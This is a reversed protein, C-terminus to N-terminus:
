RLLILEPTANEASWVIANQQYRQGCEIAELRSIGLVLLHAEGPYTNEPDFGFGPLSRYGAAQMEDHLKKQQTHNVTVSTEISHSNWATLYASCIVGAKRHLQALAECRQDIRLTFASDQTAHVQFHTARFAAILSSPLTSDSM